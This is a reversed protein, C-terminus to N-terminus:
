KNNNNNNNKGKQFVIYIIPIMIGILILTIVLGIVMSEKKCTIRIYGEKKVIPWIEEKLFLEDEGYKKGSYENIRNEMNPIIYNRMGIRNACFPTYVLHNGLILFPKDSKEWDKIVQVIDIRKMMFDRDFLTDTDTMFVISKEAKDEFALFRWFTGSLEDSPKNMIFVQFKLDTLQKVYKENLDPGIYIRFNFGPFDINYKDRIGPGYKILPLYYKLYERSPNENIGGFLSCVVIFPCDKDHNIRKVVTYRETNEGKSFRICLLRIFFGNIGKLYTIYIILLLLVYFLPITNNM